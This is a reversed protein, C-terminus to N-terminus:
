VTGFLFYKHRVVGVLSVSHEMFRTPTDCEEYADMKGYCSHFITLNLM